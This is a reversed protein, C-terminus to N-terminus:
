TVGQSYTTSITAPEYSRTIQKPKAKRKSAYIEKVYANACASHYVAGGPISSLWLNNPADYQKCYKCKRWEPHGCSELAYQRQHILRHYATNECIVLNSRENNSRDGDIHHVVAKEPLRKGLAQEAIIRHELKKHTGVSVATYGNGMITGTGYKRKILETTGHNTVRKYHMNCYGISSAKKRDCGEVSCLRIAKDNLM